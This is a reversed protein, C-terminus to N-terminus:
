VARRYQRVSDKTLGLRQAIVATEHGRQALLKVLARRAKPIYICDGGFRECVAAANAGLAAALSHDEALHDPRPVHISEGGMVLALNLAAERGAVEEIEALVGPLQSPDTATSPM